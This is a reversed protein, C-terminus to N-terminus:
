APYRPLLHAAAPRPPRARSGIAPPSNLRTSTSHHGSHGAAAAACNRSTATVSGTAVSAAPIDINDVGNGFNAILKLRIDPQNLIEATIEDSVTPVLIDATRVAEALRDPTMPTDDINLRTDFLERMRTETIDPLKRTVVVLPKKKAPVM